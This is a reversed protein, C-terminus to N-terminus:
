SNCVNKCQGDIKVPEFTIACNVWLCNGPWNQSTEKYNRPQNPFYFTLLQNWATSYANRPQEHSNEIHHQHFTFSIMLSFFCGPTTRLNWVEPLWQSYFIHMRTDFIIRTNIIINAQWNSGTFTSPSHLFNSNFCLIRCMMEFGSHHVFAFIIDSNLYM